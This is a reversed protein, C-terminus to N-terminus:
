RPTLMSDEVVKESCEPLLGGAFQPSASCRMCPSIQMLDLNPFRRTTFTSVHVCAM